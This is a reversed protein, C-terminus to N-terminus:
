DKGALCQSAGSSHVTGAEAAANYVMGVFCSAGDGTPIEPINASASKWGLMRRFFDFFGAQTM